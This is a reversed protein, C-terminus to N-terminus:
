FSPGRIAFADVAEANSANRGPVQIPALEYLHEIRYVTASILYMLRDFSLQHRAVEMDRWHVSSTHNIAGQQVPYIDVYIENPSFAIIRRFSYGVVSVGYILAHPLIKKYELWDAISYTIQSGIPQSSECDLHIMPAVREAVAELTHAFTPNVAPVKKYEFLGITVWRDCLTSNHPYMESSTFTELTDDVCRSTSGIVVNESGFGPFRWARSHHQSFLHGM